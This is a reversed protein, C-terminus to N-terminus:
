YHEVYKDCQFSWTVQYNKDYRALYVQPTNDGEYKM